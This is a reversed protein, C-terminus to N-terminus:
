VMPRMLKQLLNKAASSRRATGSPPRKADIYGEGGSDRVHVTPHLFTRRLGEVLHVLLSQALHWDVLYLADIELRVKRFRNFEQSLAYETTM